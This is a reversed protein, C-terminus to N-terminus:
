SMDDLYERLGSAYAPHRLRAITMREIQRIRERTLGYIKGIDDLTMKEQGGLGFRLRVVEADRKSFMTLADNLIQGLLIREVESRADTPMSRDAILDGLTGDGDDGHGIPTNLSLPDRSNSAHVRYDELRQLSWGLENALESESPERGLDDTMRREVAQMKRIAGHVNVPLRVASGSNPIARQLAQKIWWTAYTSVKYGQKYDFKEVARILGINGEQILDLLQLGRGQFRTAISVVLRLNARILHEKAEVGERAIDELHDRDGEDYERFEESGALVREALLGVEIQRSLRVEDEKTLLPTKAIANLWDRVPDDSLFTNALEEIEEASIDDLPDGDDISITELAVVGLGAMSEDIPLADSDFVNEPTEVDKENVPSMETM